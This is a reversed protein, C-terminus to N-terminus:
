LIIVSVPSAWDVSDTSVIHFHASVPCNVSVPSPADLHTIKSLQLPSQHLSLTRVKKSKSINLPCSNVGSAHLLNLDVFM